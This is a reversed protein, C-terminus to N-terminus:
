AAPGASITRIQGPHRAKPNDRWQFEVRVPIDHQDALRSIERWADVASQGQVSLGLDSHHHFGGEEHIGTQAPVQLMQVLREGSLGKAKVRAITALLVGNWKPRDLTEGGVSASLIRTFALATAEQPEAPQIIHDVENGERESGLGIEEAKQRILWDIAQAPTEIGQWQAISRLRLFAADNIRIVPMM